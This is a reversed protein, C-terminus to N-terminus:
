QSSRPTAARFERAFAADNETNVNIATDFAFSKVMASHKLHDAIYAMVSANPGPEDIDSLAQSGWRFAGVTRHSTVRHRTLSTLNGRPDLEVWAPRGSGREPVSTVGITLWSDEACSRDLFSSIAGPEAVLDSDLVAFAGLGHHHKTRVLDRFYGSPEEVLLRVDVASEAIICQLEASDERVYLLVPTNAEAAAIEGLLLQLISAQGAVPTLTKARSKGMRSGKGNALIVVVDIAISM